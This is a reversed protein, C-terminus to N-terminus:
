SSKLRELSWGITVEGNGIARLVLQRAVRHSLGHNGTEAEVALSAGTATFRWIRNGPLMLDLADDGASRVDVSHDLHFHVAIPVSSAPRNWTGRPSLRDIGAVRAGDPSLRLERNHILGYKSGYGDHSAVLVIGAGAESQAASAALHATVTRPGTLSPAGCLALAEPSVIFQANPQNDLCLTNQSATHRWAAVRGRLPSPHWDRRNVLVSTAGHSIEFALCGAVAAGSHELTPATGCDVLLVTEGADLRAYRTAGIGTEPTTDASYLSASALNDIQHSGGGNFGALRGDGLRMQRLFRAMAAPTEDLVRPLPRNRAAYSQRLSLLDLLLELVLQPNRSIHGGDELIQRRLEAILEPEARDLHFDQDKIALDALVIAILGQLRAPDRKRCADDLVTLQRALSSTIREFVEQEAGDLILPSHCIWAIIRRALIDTRWAPDGSPFSRSIWDHVLTRAVEAAKPSQSAASLHNLWGFGLLEQRWEVPAGVVGFPSQRGVAVTAGALGMSGQELELLFSPDATRLDSPVILFEAVPRGRRRPLSRRWRVSKQQRATARRIRWREIM